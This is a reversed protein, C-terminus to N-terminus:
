VLRERAEKQAKVTLMSIFNSSERFCLPSKPRHLQMKRGGKGGVSERGVRKGRRKRLRCFYTDCVSLCVPVKYGGIGGGWRGENGPATHMMVKIM